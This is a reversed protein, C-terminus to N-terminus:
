AHTASELAQSWLQDAYAPHGDLVECARDRANVDIDGFPAFLAADEEASTLGDFFRQALAHAGGSRAVLQRYARATDPKVSDRRVAPAGNRISVIRWIDRRADEKTIAGETVHHLSEAASDEQTDYGLQEEAVFTSGYTSGDDDGLPADLSISGREIYYNAKPRRGPPMSLRIEDAATERENKTMPRGHEEKFAAEAEKLVRLAQFDEHRLGHQGGVTYDRNAITRAVLRLLSKQTVLEKLEKNRRLLDVWADQTIDDANTPDIRFSSAMTAATAAMTSHAYRVQDDFAAAREREEILTAVQGEDLLQAPPTNVKGAFQGGSAGPSGAPRHINGYEDPITM